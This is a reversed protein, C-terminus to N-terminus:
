PHVVGLFSGALASMSHLEDSCRRRKRTAAAEEFVKDRAEGGSTYPQGRSRERTWICRSDPRDVGGREVEGIPRPRPRSLPGPPYCGCDSVDDDHLPV